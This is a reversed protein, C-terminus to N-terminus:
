HVSHCQMQPILDPYGRCHCISEVAFLFIGQLQLCSATLSRKPSSCPLQAPPKAQSEVRYMWSAKGTIQHRSAMGWYKVTKKQSVKSEFMEEQRFCSVHKCHLALNSNSCFFFLELFSIFILWYQINRSCFQVNPCSIVLFFAISMVSQKEDPKNPYWM